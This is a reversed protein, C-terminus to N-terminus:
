YHAVPAEEAFKDVKDLPLFLIYGSNQYFCTGAVAAASSFRSILAMM